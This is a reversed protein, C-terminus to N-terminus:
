PTRIEFSLDNNERLFTFVMFTLLFLSRSVTLIIALNHGQFSKTNLITKSWDANLKKISVLVLIGVLVLTNGFYLYITQAHTLFWLFADSSPIGNAVTRSIAKNFCSSLNSWGLITRKNSTQFPNLIVDDIICLMITIVYCNVM